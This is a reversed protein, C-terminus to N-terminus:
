TQLSGRGRSDVLVEGKEVQPVEHINISEYKIRLHNLIEYFHCRNVTEAIIRDQLSLQYIYSLAESRVSRKGRPHPLRTECVM